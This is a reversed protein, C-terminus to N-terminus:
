FVARPDACVSHFLCRGLSLPESRRGRTRHVNNFAWREREIRMSLSWLTNIWLTMELWRGGPAQSKWPLVKLNYDWSFWACMNTWAQDGVYDFSVLHCASLSALPGIFFSFLIGDYSYRLIYFTIKRAGLFVWGESPKLNEARFCNRWGRVLVKLDTVNFLAKKFSYFMLHILDGRLNSTIRLECLDVKQWAKKLLVNVFVRVYCSSDSNM